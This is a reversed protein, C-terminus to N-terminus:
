PPTSRGERRYKELLATLDRVVAPQERIVNRKESVDEALNYLEGPRVLGPTDFSPQEPILKWAGRRIAFVGNGSHHVVARPLRRNASNGLLDGLIDVSDEAADNPLQAGIISACTRMTDNLCILEPSTGSPRIKGPWRALYPVRHGGEYIDAKYGRLAGCPKPGSALLEKLGAYATHGNDGAFIVLTNESLKNRDLAALVEGVAWDTELMLDAWANIGSKGQFRESPRIPEHPTTLPFYLFFPRKSQARLGIQEVAKGTLKGLIDEFKWGPLMPGPVGDLDRTTKRATPLGVMRYNEIFCYPPYNPVDVGFYYDFGCTTPGGDIAFRFDMGDDMRPWDWGLHWKGICATYYGHRQLMGPLTLRGAEILPPDYPRLVHRNLRTRWAYRGTLLGYRTPSCVASGSHADTFCVGERALRDINATNIKSSENYCGLDGCGLDDALIFVINPTQARAARPAAQLTAGGLATGFHRRTMTM